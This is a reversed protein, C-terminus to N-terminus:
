LRSKLSFGFADHMVVTVGHMTRPMRLLWILTLMGYCLSEIITGAAAARSVVKCQCTYKRCAYIFLYSTFLFMSSTFIFLFHMYGKNFLLLAGPLRRSFPFYCCLPLYKGIRLSEGLRTIGRGVIHRARLAGGLAAAIAM